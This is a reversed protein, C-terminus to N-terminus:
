VAEEEVEERSEGRKKSTFRTVIWGVFPLCLTTLLYKWNEAVFGTPNVQVHVTVSKRDLVKADGLIYIAVDLTKDGWASCAIKWPWKSDGDQVVVQTLKASEKPVADCGQGSIEATMSGSMPVASEVPTVAEGSKAVSRQTKLLRSLVDYSVVLTVPFEDYERVSKPAIVAASGMKLGSLHRTPADSNVTEAPDAKLTTHGTDRAAKGITAGIDMAARDSARSEEAEARLRLIDEYAKRAAEASTLASVGRSAAVATSRGNPIFICRHFLGRLCVRHSSGVSITDHPPEAGSQPGRASGTVTAQTPPFQQSPLPPPTRLEPPTVVPQHDLSVAKPPVPNSAGILSCSAVLCALTLIILARAFDM